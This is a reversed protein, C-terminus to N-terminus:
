RVATRDIITPRRSAIQMRCYCSSARSASPLRQWAWALFMPGIALVIQANSQSRSTISHDGSCRQLTGPPYDHVDRSAFTLFVVSSSECKVTVTCDRQAARAFPAIDLRRTRRASKPVGSTGTLCSSLPLYWNYYHPRFTDVGLFAGSSYISYRINVQGVFGKVTAGKQLKQQSVNVPVAPM